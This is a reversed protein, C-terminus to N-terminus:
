KRNRVAAELKTRLDATPDKAPAEVAKRTALDFLYKKPATREDPWVLFFVRGDPLKNFGSVRLGEALTVPAAGRKEIFLVKSKEGARNQITSVLVGSLQVEGADAPPLVHMGGINQGSLWVEPDESGIEYRLVGSPGQAANVAVFIGKGDASLVPSDYSLGVGGAASPNLAKGGDNQPPRPYAIRSKSHAFFRPEGGNIPVEALALSDKDAAVALITKGDPAFAFPRYDREVTKIASPVNKDDVNLLSLNCFLWHCASKNQPQGKAPRKGVSGHSKMSIAFLSTQGNKPGVGYEEPQAERYYSVAVVIRRLKSDYLVRGQQGPNPIGKFVNKELDVFWGQPSSSSQFLFTETDFKLHPSTLLAQKDGLWEGVFGPALALGWKADENLNVAPALVAPGMAPGM